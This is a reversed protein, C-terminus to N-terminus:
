DNLMVGSIHQGTMLGYLRNCTLDAYGPWEKWYKRRIGQLGHYAATPRPEDYYESDPGAIITGGNCEITATYVQKRSNAPNNMVESIANKIDEITKVIIQKKM